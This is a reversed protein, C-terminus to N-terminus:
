PGIGPLGFGGLLGGLDLGQAGPPPFAGGPAGNQATAGRGEPQAARILMEANAV